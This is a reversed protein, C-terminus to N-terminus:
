NSTLRYGTVVEANKDAAVYVEMGRIMRIDRRTPQMLRLLRNMNGASKGMFRVKGAYVLRNKVCDKDLLIRRNPGAVFVLDGVRMRCAKWPILGIRHKMVRIRPSEQIATGFKTYVVIEIIQNHFKPQRIWGIVCWVAFLLVCAAILPIWYMWLNKEVTLGIECSAEEPLEVRIVADGYFWSHGSLTLLFSGDEQLRVQESFGAKRAGTKWRFFYPSEFRIDWIIGLKSIEEVTVPKGDATLVVRVPQAESLSTQSAEISGPDASLEYHIKPIIQLEASGSAELEPCSVHVRVMGTDETTGRPQFIWCGEQADFQWSYEIPIGELRPEDLEYAAAQEASLRSGDATLYFRIPSCDDLQNQRVTDQDTEAELAYEIKPFVEVSVSATLTMPQLQLLADPLGAVSTTVKLKGVSDTTGKPQFLYSGDEERTWDYALTGGEIVPETLEYRMADEKALAEGNGTISFRIPSCTDLENQRASVQDTDAKVGYLVSDMDFRIDATYPLFGPVTMSGVIRNEGGMLTITMGQSASESVVTGGAEYSMAYSTDAALLAPDIVTDTGAEAAYGTVTVEQGEMLGPLAEAPIETGGCSFSLRYELAPEFMVTLSAPDIDATFQVTYTGAPLNEGGNDALVATGFLAPDANYQDPSLSVTRTIPYVTGDAGTVSAVSAGTGQSLFAINRLPLPSTVSATHGDLMAVEDASLRYRGSIMDAMSGITHIMSQGDSTALAHFNLDPRDTLHVAENGIALYYTNLRTQNPMPTQYFSEFLAQVQATDITITNTVDDMFGGDTMVVLYYSTTPDSDPHSVLENYATQISGYPTGEMSWQKARVQDAAAQPDSLNVAMALGAPYPNSPDAQVARQVDSMYVLYLEDDENLLSIFAQIAYNAYSYRNESSMSGSDDYVITVVKRGSSSNAFADQRGGVAILLFAMVLIATIKKMREGRGAFLRKKRSESM